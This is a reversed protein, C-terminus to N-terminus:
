RCAILLKVKAEKSRSFTIILSIKLAGHQKQLLRTAYQSEAGGSRGELHGGLQFRSYLVAVLIVCM